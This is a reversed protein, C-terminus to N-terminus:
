HFVLIHERNHMNGKTKSIGLPLLIQITFTCYIYVRYARISQEARQNFIRICIVYCQMKLVYCQMKLLIVNTRQLYVQEKFFPSKLLPCSIVFFQVFSVWAIFDFQNAKWLWFPPSQHSHHCSAQLNFFKTYKPKSLM